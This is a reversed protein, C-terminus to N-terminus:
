KQNVKFYRAGFLRVAIYILRRTKFGVGLATMADLFLKDAAQRSLQHHQYLYDHIVAAKAYQGAPPFVSWFLRPVSTLDTIFGEPVTIVEESSCYEFPATLRFLRPGIFEFRLPSFTGM